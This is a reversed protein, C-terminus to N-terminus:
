ETELGRPLYACRSRQTDILDRRNHQRTHQMIDSRVRLDQHRPSLIGLPILRQSPKRRRKRPSQSTPEDRYRRPPHLTCQPNRSHQLQSNRHRPHHPRNLIIALAYSQPPLHNNKEKRRSGPTKGVAVITSISESQLSFRLLSSTSPLTM